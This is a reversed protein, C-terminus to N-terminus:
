VIEGVELVPTIWYRLGAGTFNQRLCSLMAMQDKILLLAQVQTVFSRGMVQESESMREQSMGHAATQTSTIITIGPFVLLTDLLKEELKSPCLLTLCLESM